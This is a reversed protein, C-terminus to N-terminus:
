LLVCPSLHLSTRVHRHHQNCTVYVNCGTMVWPQKQCCARLHAPLLICNQIRMLLRPHITTTPSPFITTTCPRKCLAREAKSHQMRACWMICQFCGDVQGCCFGMKECLWVTNDSWRMVSSNDVLTLVASSQRELMNRPQPATKSRQQLLLGCGHAPWLYLVPLPPQKRAWGLM